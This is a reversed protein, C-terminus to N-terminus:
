SLTFCQFVEQVALWVIHVDYYGLYWGSNDSTSHVQFLLFIISSHPALILYLSSSDISYHLSCADNSALPLPYLHTLLIPRGKYYEWHFQIHFLSWKRIEDDYNTSSYWIFFVLIFPKSVLSLWVIHVLLSWPASYWMVSQGAIEYFDLWHKSEKQVFNWISWLYLDQYPESL